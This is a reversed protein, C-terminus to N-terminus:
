EFHQYSKGMISAGDVLGLVKFKLSDQLFYPFHYSSPDLENGVLNGKFVRKTLFIIDYFKRLGGVGNNENAGNNNVNLGPASGGGVVGGSDISM